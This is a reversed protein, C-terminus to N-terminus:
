YEKKNKTLSDFLTRKDKYKIVEWYLNKKKLGLDKSLRDFNLSYCDYNSKDVPPDSHHYLPGDFCFRFSFEFVEYLYAYNKKFSSCNSDNRCKYVITFEMYSVKERLEYMQFSFKVDKEKELFKYRDHIAFPYVGVWKSNYHIYITANLYPNLEEDANMQDIISKSDTHNYITLCEVSYKDNFAYDLIYLLSIFIMIIIYILFLIGGFNTKNTKKSFIFIRPTESLFDFNRM